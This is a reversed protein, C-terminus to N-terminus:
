KTFSSIRSQLKTKLPLEVDKLAKFTIKSIANRKLMLELWHDMAESLAVKSDIYYDEKRDIKIQYFGKSINSGVADISKVFPIGLLTQNEDDLSNFINWANDSLKKYLKYEILNKVNTPIVEKM